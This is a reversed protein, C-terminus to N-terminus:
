CRMSRYACSRRPTSRCYRRSAMPFAPRMQDIKAAVADATALANAGAALMIAVGTAPQGNYRSIVTYNESGLEVRAVDGLRLVSGDAHSRLVIAGFQESTQLRDQATITANIQQGDIAPTGGLQGAAVQANQARIATVIDSPLLRYTALKAPDLWVRMAYKGGFVQVSGVGPVRSIQDVVNSSVYDAIDNRDM